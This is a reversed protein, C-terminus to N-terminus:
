LNVVIEYMKEPSCDRIATNTNQLLLLVQEEGLRKWLNEVPKIIQQIINTKALDYATKGDKNKLLPNAGLELLARCTGMHGNGAAFHIAAWGDNDKANVDAGLEKVLVRCTETQGNWAALHIPALDRNTEENIAAGLEKLIKCTKTHGYAAAFHIATWGDDDDKTNIDVGLEKVLVRCTETHGNSAAWFIPAWGNNDQENVDAGLRALRRVDKTKGTRAADRFEENLEEQQKPTLPKRRKGEESLPSLPKHAITPKITKTGIQGKIKKKKTEM